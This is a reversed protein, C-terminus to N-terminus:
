FRRARGLMEDLSLYAVTVNGIDPSFLPRLSTSSDTAQFHHPLLINM